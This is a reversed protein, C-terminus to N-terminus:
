KKLQHLFLTSPPPIGDRAQDRFPAQAEWTIYFVEDPSEHFGNTSRTRFALQDGTVDRPDLSVKGSSLVEAIISPFRPPADQIELLELSSGDLIFLSRDGERQVPLRINGDPLSEPKGIRVKFGPLAGFGGFDWRFNKWNSVQYPIWETEEYRSVYVQTNGDPDFKHYAVIPRNQPDFGLKVNNNIAGGGTPVPDVIDSREFTIPLRIPRGSSDEWEMLDPSRAYSIDHNTAADGTDRWIWVMHFRGDPGATPGEVYANMKGEGDILPGNHFQSWTRSETDYLLYIDSGNGSGGIRYKFVLSGERSKLFRPYTVRDESEPDAMVRVRRLSRVEHPYEMRFYEIRDGHMNGTLHLHGESDLAMEIYNHSDWGLWSDVKYYVWPRRPGKRHAVSMQRNADYYAIYQHSGETLFDFNAFNGAWVRDIAQRNVLEFEPSGATLPNFPMLSLAALLFFPNTKM